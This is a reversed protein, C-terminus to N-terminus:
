NKVTGLKTNELSLVTRWDGKQKAAAIQEDIGGPTGGPRPGQSPDPRPVRPGPEAAAWHPKRTLLDDIAAQIATQDVTGAETLYSGDKLAEVADLPDQFRGAALAEVKASVALRTASEARAQADKLADAQREADTKDRDEFQKLRAAQDKNQQEADKARKKWEALAKEGAPGLAPDGEPPGAPDTGPAPPSAPPAPPTPPTPPDAPPQPNGAAPAPPNTPDPPTSM